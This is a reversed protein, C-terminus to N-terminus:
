LGLRCGQYVDPKTSDPRNVGKQRLTAIAIWLTLLVQTIRMKPGCGSSERRSLGALVAPPPRGVDSDCCGRQRSLPRARSVGSTTGATGFPNSGVWLRPM